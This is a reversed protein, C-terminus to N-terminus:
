APTGATRSIGAMLKNIERAARAGEQLAGPVCSPNRHNTGEGAFFIREDIPQRLQQRMSVPGAYTSPMPYSYSGRVYPDGSWDQVVGDIYRERVTDGFILELDSLMVNLIAEDGKKGGGAAEAIRRLELHNEGM